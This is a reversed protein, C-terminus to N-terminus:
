YTTGYRNSVVHKTVECELTFPRGKRVRLHTPLDRSFKPMKTSKTLDVKTKTMLEFEVGKRSKGTVRFYYQRLPKLNFADFQPIPSRGM